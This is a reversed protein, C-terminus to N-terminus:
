KEPRLFYVELVQNKNISTSYFTSHVEYKQDKQTGADFFIKTNDETGIILLKESDDMLSDMNNYVTLDIQGVPQSVWSEYEDPANYIM